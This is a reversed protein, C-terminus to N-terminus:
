APVSRRDTSAARVAVEQLTTLRRVVKQSPHASAGPAPAYWGAAAPQYLSLLREIFREESHNARVREILADGEARRAAPDAWLERLRRSLAPTDGRPM